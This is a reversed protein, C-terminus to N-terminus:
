AMAIIQLMKMDPHELAHCIACLVEINSPEARLEPYASYSKIHHGHLKLVSFCRQCAGVAKVRDRIAKKTRHDRKSSGGNWRSHNEKKPVNLQRCAISCYKMPGEGGKRRSFEMGCQACNAFVLTKTKKPRLIFSCALSCAHTKSRIHAHPRKFEKTCVPCVLTVSGRGVIKRM